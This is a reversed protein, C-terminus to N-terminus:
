FVDDIHEQAAAAFLKLARLGLVGCKVAARKLKEKSSQAKEIELVHEAMDLGDRTLMAGNTDM